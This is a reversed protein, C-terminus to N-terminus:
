LGPLLSDDADDGLLALQFVRHVAERHDMALGAIEDATGIDTAPGLNPLGAPESLTALLVDRQPQSLGRVLPALLLGLIREHAVLKAVLKNHNEDSM